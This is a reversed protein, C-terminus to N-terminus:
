KFESEKTERDQHTVQHSNYSESPVYRVLKSTLLSTLVYKNYPNVIISFFVTLARMLGGCSSLLDLFSETKRNIQTM